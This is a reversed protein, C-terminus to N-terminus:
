AAGREVALPPQRTQAVHLVAVVLSTGAQAHEPQPAASPFLRKGCQLGAVPQLHRISMVTISRNRFLFYATAAGSAPWPASRRTSRM